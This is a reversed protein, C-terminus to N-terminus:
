VSPALSFLAFVVLSLCIVVFSLKRTIEDMQKDGSITKNYTPALFFPVANINLHHKWFGSLIGRLVSSGSIGFQADRLMKNLGHPNLNISNNM